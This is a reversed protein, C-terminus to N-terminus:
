WRSLGSHALGIQWYQEQVNPDYSLRSSSVLEMEEYYTGNEGEVGTSAALRAVREGGKEPPEGSYASSYARLLKTDIVGPHLCNATIRSGELMSALRYTFAVIGLKSFAYADYGDYPEGEEFQQRDFSRVARHAISAVSVIRAPANKSLLPLLDHTLLFPALYNVALTTELGDSTPHRTRMFVGANNVLVDLRGYREVIESALRRVQDRVGLDAIVMGLRESGTRRGIEQLVSRGKVPDRGHIVVFHGHEALLLATARGIGDTSGTVLVTREKM